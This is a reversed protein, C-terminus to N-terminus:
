TIEGQTIDIEFLTALNSNGRGLHMELYGRIGNRGASGLEGGMDQRAIAMINSYKSRDLLTLLVKLKM